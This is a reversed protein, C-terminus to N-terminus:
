SLAMFFDRFLKKSLSNDNLLIYILEPLMYSLCEHWHLKNSVSNSNSFTKDKCMHASTFVLIYRFLALNLHLKHSSGYVFQGFLLFFVQIFVFLDSINM